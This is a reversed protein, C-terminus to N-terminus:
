VKNGYNQSWIGRNQIIKGISLPIIKEYKRKMMNRVNISRRLEGNMYPVRKGKITKIKIPAHENVIQMILENWIWYTDDVDDFIEIINFPILSLDKLFLDSNFNKFSRYRITSPKLEPMYLKTAACILSHFDSLGTDM